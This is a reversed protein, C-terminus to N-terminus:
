SEIIKEYYLKFGFIYAVWAHDHQILRESFKQLEIPSKKSVFFSFKLIRFKYGQKQTLKSPELHQFNSIDYFLHLM